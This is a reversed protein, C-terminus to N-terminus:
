KVEIEVLIGKETGNNVLTHTEKSDMWHVDGTKIPHVLAEGDASTMKLNM